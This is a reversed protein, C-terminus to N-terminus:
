LLSIFCQDIMTGMGFVQKAIEQRAKEVQYMLPLFEESKPYIEEQSIILREQESLNESTELMEDNMTNELKGFAVM